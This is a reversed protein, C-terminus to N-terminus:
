RSVQRYVQSHVSSRFRVLTLVTFFGESLDAVQAFVQRKMTIFFRKDTLTTVGPKGAGDHEFLVLLGM